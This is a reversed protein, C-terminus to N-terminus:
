RTPQRCPPPVLRYECSIRPARLGRTGMLARGAAIAAGIAELFRRTRKGVGDHQSSDTRGLGEPQGGLSPHPGRGAGAREPCAGPQGAGARQAERGHLWRGAHGGLAAGALGDLSLSSGGRRGLTLKPLIGHQNTPCRSTDPPVRGRSLGPSEGNERRRAPAGVPMLHPASMFFSPVQTAMPVAM